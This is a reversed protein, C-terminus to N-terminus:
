GSGLFVRLDNVQAMAVSYGLRILARCYTKEFPIYSLMKSGTRKTAVVTRLLASIVMPLEHAYQEAIVSLPVSPTLVRYEVAKLQTGNEQLTEQLIISITRNIRQLRELDVGLGDLFISILGVVPKNPQLAGSM